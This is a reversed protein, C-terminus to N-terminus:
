SGCELCVEGDVEIQNETQQAARQKMRDRFSQKEQSKKDPTSRGILQSAKEDAIQLKQADVAPRSHIYYSGTKLGRRWVFFQLKSLLAPNPKAIFRNASQSQDIHPSRAIEHFMLWKVPIDWATAYIDRVNKPIELINQVSGNALILKRKMDQNWLGLSVLDNILLDNVVVFEGDKTARNYINSNFPEFCPSNGMIYSTSATPMPAVLLSNRLGHQVIERKLTDWDLSHDFLVQVQKGGEMEYRQATGERELLDFQLLGQSAPSGQFTEYPGNKKALAVSQTLAAFYINEFIYYGLRVAEQSNFPLRLMAFMDALGQVGLGIPRHRLNSRKTEPIPYYNIDIVRDLNYTLQRTVEQLAEMDFRKLEIIGDKLSTNFTYTYKQADDYSVDKVFTPLCISALNCVAVEDSSTYEVIETCLNSQTITGLNAQNNKRNVNDKNLMYPLGTESQLETIMNWLYQAKVTKTYRGSRVYHRYLTSFAYNNPNADVEEDSVFTSSYKANFVKELGPSQDPCMLYWDMDNEVRWMFEDSNWVAYFMGRAKNTKEDEADGRHKRLELFTEIDGHWPELYLAHSGPRKQGGNHVLGMHTLYNHNQDIRYDYVPGVYNSQTVSQVRSWLMGGYTFYKQFQGEKITAPDYYQTIKKVFPIRVVYSIQQTTCPKGRILHTEGRRDRIYGSTGIGIRLLMFRIAEIVNRSTLEIIIEKGISGDSDLLGKVINITKLEPLHLMTPDVKKQGEEDYMMERTFPFNGNRTWVIQRCSGDHQVTETFNIDACYLYSRVFEVADIKTIDNLTINCANNTSSIWGDGLMLGYMYCDEETINPNDKIYTPIPLGVLYEENLDEVNTFKPKIIGKKLRNLIVDYNVGKRQHLAYVPHRGTVIVPELAHMISVEYSPTEFEPSTAGPLIELVKHFTGDKTLMEDGVKIDEAKKIGNKTYMITDPHFCQDIYASIADLVRAYPGLGNSTGNTGRIYTGSARLKHASSGIGGAWKQIHMCATFLKAIGELSDGFLQILYCSSCQPRLTGANFLTPTAHTAMKNSMINYTAEIHQWQEDTVSGDGYQNPDINDWNIRKSGDEFKLHPLLSIFLTYIQDSSMEFNIDKLWNQFLNFQDTQTGAESYPTYEKSCHIGIAIRMLMHQPREITVRRFKEGDFMNAKLLYTNDIMNMGMFDYNFDRSYDMMQEIREHNKMIINYVHPAILPARYGQKDTNNWLAEATFKFLNDEVTNMIQETPSRVKYYNRALDYVNNKHFNSMFIRAALIGFQPHHTSLAQAIRSSEIDLEVSTVGDYISQMVEKSVLTPDIEKLPTLSRNIQNVKSDRNKSSNLFDKPANPKGNEIILDPRALNRNRADIKNFDVAAPLGDRKIVKMM